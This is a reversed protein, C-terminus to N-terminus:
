ATTWRVEFVDHDAGNERSETLVVTAPTGFLKGLGKVLGSTFHAMGGRHTYHHLRLSSATVDSCEFRPPKLKPFIMGIRVHMNNLNALFEPLTRGTSAMMDSYSEQATSLVWHEGFTELIQAAPLGLVESAAGVLQYTIEDPYPENSIFSLTTVGARAKIDEWVADGHGKRVMSEISKNVM